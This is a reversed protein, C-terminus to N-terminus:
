EIIPSIIYSERARQGTGVKPGDKDHKRTASGVVKYAQTADRAIPSLAYLVEMLREWEM